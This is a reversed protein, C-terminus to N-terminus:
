SERSKGRSRPSVARSSSARVQDVEQDLLDLEGVDHDDVLGVVDRVLLADPDDLDHAPEIGIGADDRSAM